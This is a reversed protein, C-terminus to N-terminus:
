GGSMRAVVAAAAPMSVETNKVKQPRFMMWLSEALVSLTSGTPLGAIGIGIGMGSMMEARGPITGSADFISRDRKALWLTAVMPSSSSAALSMPTRSIAQWIVM